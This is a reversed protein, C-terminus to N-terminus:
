EGPDPHGSILDDDTAATLLERRALLATVCHRYLAREKEDMEAWSVPDGDSPDLHELTEYLVQGLLTIAEDPTPAPRDVSM